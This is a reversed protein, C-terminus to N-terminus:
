PCLADNRDRSSSVNFLSALKTLTFGSVSPALVATAPLPRFKTNAATLGAISLVTLIRVCYLLEFTGNNDM